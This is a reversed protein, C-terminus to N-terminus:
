PKQGPTYPFSIKEGTRASDYAACAIELSTRGDESTISPESGHRICDIFEGTECAFPNYYLWYPIICSYALYKLAMRGLSHSGCPETVVKCREVTLAKKEGIIGIDRKLFPFCYSAGVVGLKGSEFVILMWITDDINSGSASVTLEASVRRVPEDIIWRLWDIAHIALEFNVGPSHRADSYWKQPPLGIGRRFWAARIDGIKGSDITRKMKVFERYFRQSFGPMLIRQYKKEAEIMRGAEQLTMALPKECLVHSGSALSNIAISCHSDTPTTISVADPRLESLMRTYDTYGKPVKFIRQLKEVKAATRGAIGVVDVSKHARYGKLHWYAMRGAGIVAVRINKNM